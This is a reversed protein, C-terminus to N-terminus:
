GWFALLILFDNVGVQCDGDLDAPCGACDGCPGWAGLLILFDNVGVVGDGDLDGTTVLADYKFVAVGEAGTNYNSYGGGVYINQGADLRLIDGSALEDPGGGVISRDVELGTGADLRFLIMDGSYPPSNTYGVVLANGGADVIVDGPTDLCGVCNAGYFHTWLQGGTAADRKVTYFNDNMNSQDGDPDAAGTIYVGGLGDLALGAAYDDIGISDYKQWLLQGDSGRLKITSYMDTFNIGTGTVYVDGTADIEMDQPFDGGTVGWTTQWLVAGDSPRYKIIVYDPHLSGMVGHIMAVVDGHPDVRVQRVQDQSYPSFAPGDYTASWRFRGAADFSLLLGDPGDGVTAGGVYVNGQTDTAVSAGHESTFPGSSYQVTDLLAGTAADYKLLLVNAYSGPGPTNGTVYVVGDPGLGIGRAQDHWNAPGNFVHQWQLTGDPGFAATLIDTNSSPGTIGTVYSVGGPDTVMGQLGATLASGAPLRVIWDPAWEACAPPAPLPNLVATLGLAIFFPSTPKM